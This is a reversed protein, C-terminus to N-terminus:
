RQRKFFYTRDRGRQEVGVLEWGQRGVASLNLEDTVDGVVPASVIKYEWSKGAQTFGVLAALLALSLALASLKNRTM